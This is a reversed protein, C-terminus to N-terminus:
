HICALSSNSSEIAWSLRNSSLDLSDIKSLPYFANKDVYTINNNALKLINLSSLKSFTFREIKQLRNFNLNLELLQPTSDWSGPLIQNVSNHRLSLEKLSNLGYTWGDRIRSINNHDLNLKQLKQLGYFSGDPLFDFKNRRMKLVELSKSKNFALTAIHNIRNSSLDLEKLLTLHNLWEKNVVAINNKSLKLVKLNIFMDFAGAEIIEIRTNHLILTTLKTDMKQSQNTLFHKPIIGINNNSLDLTELSPYISIDVQAISNYDLNNNVLSLTKLNNVHKIQPFSSLSNYDFILVQLSREFLSVDNFLHELFDSKLYHLSTNTFDIYTLNNPPIILRDHNAVLTELPNNGLLLVKTWLPIIEPVFQLRRGTCNVTQQENCHCQKPCANLSLGHSHLFCGPFLPLLFLHLLLSWLLYCVVLNSHCLM